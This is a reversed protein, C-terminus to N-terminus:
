KLMVQVHTKDIRKMVRINTKIESHTGIGNDKSTVYKNPVCTGDDTLVLKGMLGIADWEKRNSRPTYQQDKNFEKSLEQLNKKNKVVYAGFVDKEYKGQWDESYSDGIITPNASVIGLIYDDESTALRIKDGELTVLLGKRDQANQNGDLWEFMEAYDAGSSNYTGGYVATDTIRFSNGMNPVGSKGIVVNSTQTPNAAASGMILAGEGINTVASNMSGGVLCNNHNSELINGNGFVISNQTPGVINDSGVVLTSMTLEELSNGSGGIISYLGDCTNTTGSVLNQQPTTDSSGVRNNNGCVFNNDGAIERNSTGVVFSYGSGAVSNSNGFSASGLSSVTNNNGAAFAYQVKATSNNCAFAQTADTESTPNDVTIKGNNCVFGQNAGRTIVGSGFAASFQAGVQGINGAVSNSGRVKAMIGLAIANGGAVQPVLTGTSNGVYIDRVTGMQSDVKLTTDARYLTGNTDHIQDVKVEPIDESNAKNNIIQGLTNLAEATVKDGIVTYNSVDIIQYTGDELQNLRYRIGQSDPIYDKWNTKAETNTM